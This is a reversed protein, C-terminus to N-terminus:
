KQVTGHRIKVWIKTEKKKIIGYQYPTRETDLSTLFKQLM